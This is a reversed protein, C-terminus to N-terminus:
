SGEQEQTSRGEERRSIQLSAVNTLVDLATAGYTLHYHRDVTRRDRPVYAACSACANRKATALVTNLTMGTYDFADLNDTKGPVSLSARFYIYVPRISLQASRYSENEPLSFVVIQISYDLLLQQQQLM